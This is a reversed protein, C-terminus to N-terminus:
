LTLSSGDLSDLALEFEPVVVTSYTCYPIRGDPMDVRCLHLRSHCSYEVFAFDSKRNKQHDVFKVVLGLWVVSCKNFEVDAGCVVTQRLVPLREPRDPSQVM